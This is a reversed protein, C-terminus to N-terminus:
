DRYERTDSKSPTYVSIKSILIILYVVQWIIKIFLFFWFSLFFVKVLTFNNPPLLNFFLTYLVFFLNVIFSNRLQEILENFFFNDKDIEKARKFFPSDERLSVLQGLLVGLIGLIISSLSITDSIAERISIFANNHYLFGFVICIILSIENILGNVKDELNGENLIKKKKDKYAKFYVKLKIKM